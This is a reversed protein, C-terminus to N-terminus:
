HARMATIMNAIAIVGSVILVGISVWFANRSSTLQKSIATWQKQYDKVKIQNLFFDPHRQVILKIARDIETKNETTYTADFRLRDALCALPLLKEEEMDATAAMIGIALEEDSAQQKSVMESHIEALASLSAQIYWDPKKNKGDVM